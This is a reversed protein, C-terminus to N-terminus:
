NSEETFSAQVYSAKLDTLCTDMICDKESLKLKLNVM